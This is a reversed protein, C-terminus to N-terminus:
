QKDFRKIPKVRDTKEYMGCIRHSLAVYNKKKLSCEAIVPNKFRQFLTCNVCTYCEILTDSKNKM